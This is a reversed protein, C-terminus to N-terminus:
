FDAAHTARPVSAFLPVLPLFIPLCVQLKQSASLHLAWNERFPVEQGWVRFLKLWSGGRCLVETKVTKDKVGGLLGELLPIEGTFTDLSPEPPITGHEPDM